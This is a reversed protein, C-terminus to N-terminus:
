SIRELSSTQSFGSRLPIADSGSTPAKLEGVTTEEVIAFVSARQLESM